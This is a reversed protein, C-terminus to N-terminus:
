RSLTKEEVLRRYEEKLSPDISLTSFASDFDANFNHMINKINAINDAKNKEDKTKIEDELRKIKRSAQRNFFSSTGNMKVEEQAEKQFQFSQEDKLMKIKDDKDELDSFVSSFFATLPEKDKDVNYYENDIFCFKFYLHSDIGSDMVENGDSDEIITRMTYSKGMRRRSRTSLIWAGVVDVGKSYDSLYEARADLYLNAGYDLSRTSVEKITLEYFNPELFLKIKTSRDKLSYTVDIIKQARRTDSRKGKFTSENVRVDCILNGMYEDSKDEYEPLLCKAIRGLFNPDTCIIKAGSDKKINKGDKILERADSSKVINKSM